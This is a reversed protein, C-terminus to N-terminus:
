FYKGNYQTKLEDIRTQDTSWVKYAVFSLALVGAVLLIPKSHNTTLGQYFFDVRQARDTNKLALM